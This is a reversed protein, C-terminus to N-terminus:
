RMTKLCIKRIKMLITSCMHLVIKLLYSSMTGNKKHKANNGFNRIKPVMVENMRQEFSTLNMNVLKEFHAFIFKPTFIFPWDTKIKNLSYTSMDNLDVRMKCFCNLMYEGVKATCNKTMSERKNFMNKMWSQKEDFTGDDDDNPQWNECSQSFCKLTRIIKLPPTYAAKKENTSSNIYYSRNNLKNTLWTMDKSVLVSQENFTYLSNPWTEGVRNSIRKLVEYPIRHSINRLLEVLIHSFETTHWGLKSGRKLHEQIYTPFLEIKIEFKDFLKANDVTIKPSNHPAIPSSATEVSEDSDSSISSATIIEIIERSNQINQDQNDIHASTTPTNNCNETNSNDEVIVANDVTKGLLSEPQVKSDSTILDNQPTWVDNDNLIMLYTSKLLFQLVDDNLIEFGDDNTVLKKGPM